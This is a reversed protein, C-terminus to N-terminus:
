HSADSRFNDIIICLNTASGRQFNFVVEVLGQANTSHGGNAGGEMLLYIMPRRPLASAKGVGSSSTM